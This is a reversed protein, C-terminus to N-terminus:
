STQESTERAALLSMPAHLVRELTTADLELGRVTLEITISYNPALIILVESSDRRTRHLHIRDAMSRGQTKKRQFDQPVTRFVTARNVAGISDRLHL